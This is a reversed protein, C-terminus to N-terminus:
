AASRHGLVGRFPVRTARGRTRRDTSGCREARTRREARDPGEELAGSLAHLRLASRPHPPEGARSGPERQRRRSQRASGQGRRRHDRPLRHPPRSSQAEPGADPALQDVRRRSGPRDRAAARIRRQRCDEPARGAKAQREPRRLVAHLGARCRCRTTGLGKGQDGEACGCGVRSPRSYSRLEGRGPIQERPLSRSDEGQRAVRRYGSAKRSGNRLRHETQDRTSSVLVNM